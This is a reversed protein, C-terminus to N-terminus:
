DEWFDPRELVGGRMSCDACARTTAFYGICGGGELCYPSLPVFMSQVFYANYDRPIVTDVACTHYDEIVIRWPDVDRRNIYQRKQASKGATIYGIVPEQPDDINHMNGTLNSPLPSFIGGIDNSNKRIAEWFVFADRDIARQTVLISYREGLKESLSGIKLLEKQYIYDNQYSESSSINIQRTRDWNWCRFTLQDDTTLPVVDRRELDYKYSSRYPSQYIWTEEYEWMFYQARENGQTSVYISVDGENKEFSIESIEPTIIPTLWNSLYTQGDTQIRLRYDQSESLPELLSYDGNGQLHLSWSSGDEAELSVIAWHIPMHSLSDYVPRTRAVSITTEGGGVEIHGEVVLISHDINAVEPEFPEKCGWCLLLLLGCRFIMAIATKMSM